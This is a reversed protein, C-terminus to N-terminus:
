DNSSENEVENYAETVDDVDDIEFETCYDLEDGYLKDRADEESEAEIYGYGKISFYFTKM